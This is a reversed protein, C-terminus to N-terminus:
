YPSQVAMRHGMSDVRYGQADVRDNYQDLRYPPVSQSQVRPDQYAVCAAYTATGVDIGYGACITSASQAAVPVEKGYTGECGALAMALGIATLTRTRM